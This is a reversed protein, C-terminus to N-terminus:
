DPLKQEQESLNEPSKKRNGYLRNNRVLAGGSKLYNKLYSKFM